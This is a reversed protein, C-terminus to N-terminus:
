SVTKIEKQWIPDNQYRPDKQLEYLRKIDVEDLPDTPLKYEIIDSAWVGSWVADPTNLERLTHLTLRAQFSSKRLTCEGHTAM